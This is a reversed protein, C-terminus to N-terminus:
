QSGEAEEKAERAKKARDFLQRREHLSRKKNKQGESKKTKKRM